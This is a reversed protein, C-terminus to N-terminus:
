PSSLTNVLIQSSRKNRNNNRGLPYLAILALCRPRIHMEVNLSMLRWCAQYKWIIILCATQLMHGPRSSLEGRNSTSGDEMQKNNKQRHMEAKAGRM